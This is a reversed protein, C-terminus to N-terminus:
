NKVSSCKHCLPYKPSITLRGAVRVGGPDMGMSRPAM